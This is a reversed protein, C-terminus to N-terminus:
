GLDSHRFLEHFGGYVDELGLCWQTVYWAQNTPAVVAGTAIDVLLEGEFGAHTQELRAVICIAGGQIALNGPIRATPLGDLSGPITLSRVVGSTGLDACPLDVQWDIFTPGVQPRFLVAGNGQSTRLALTSGGQVRIVFLHGPPISQLGVIAVNKLPIM